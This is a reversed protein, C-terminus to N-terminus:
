RVHTWITSRAGVVSETELAALDSDVCHLFSRWRSLGEGIVFSSGVRIDEIRAWGHGNKLVRNEQSADIVIM